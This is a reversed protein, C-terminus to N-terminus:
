FNILLLALNDIAGLLFMIDGLDTLDFGVGLRIDEPTPLSSFSREDNGEPVEADLYPRPACYYPYCHYYHYHYYYYYYNYYYQDKCTGKSPDCLQDQYFVHTYVYNALDLGRLATNICTNHEPNFVEATAVVSSAAM